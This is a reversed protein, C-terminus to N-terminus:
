EGEGLDHFQSVYELWSVAKLSHRKTGHDSCLGHLVAHRNLPNVYIGLNATNDNIPLVESITTLFWGFLPDDPWRSGIWEEIKKLQGRSLPSAQFIRRGIGESISLFLAVSGFYKGNHHLEFAENLMPALDLFHSVLEAHIGVLRAELRTEVLVEVEDEEGMEIKRFLADIEGLTMDLPIFWGRKALLLAAEKRSESLAKWQEQTPIKLKSIAAIQEFQAKWERQIGELYKQWPSQLAAIQEFQAKWEPKQWLAQMDVVPSNM